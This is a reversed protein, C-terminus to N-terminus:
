KSQRSMCIHRQTRIHKKPTGVNCYIWRYHYQEYLHSVSHKHKAANKMHKTFAVDTIYSAECNPCRRVDCDDEFVCSKAESELVDERNSCTNNVEMNSVGKNRRSSRVWTIDGSSHM